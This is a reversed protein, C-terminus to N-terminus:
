QSVQINKLKLVSKIKNKLSQKSKELMLQQFTPFHEAEGGQVDRWNGLFRALERRYFCGSWFGCDHRRMSDLDILYPKTGQLVINSLNLDRHRIKNKRLKRILCLINRAVKKQLPDTPDSTMFYDIALQGPLYSGIFYSRGRFPGWRTEIFAIPEFTAIGRKLLISANDWNKQARTKIVTRKIFRWGTAATRKIIWRVSPDSVAPTWVVTGSSDHKFVRQADQLSQEVHVDITNLFEQMKPTYVSKKCAIKKNWRRIIIM